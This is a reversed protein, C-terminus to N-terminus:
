AAWFKGLLQLHKVSSMQGNAHGQQRQRARPKVSECMEAPCRPAIGIHRALRALSQLAVGRGGRFPGAQGDFGHGLLGEPGLMHGFALDGDILVARRRHKRGIGAPDDLQQGLRAVVDGLALRQEHDFRGIGHLGLVIEDRGHGAQVLCSRREIERLQLIRAGLIQEFALRDRELVILLGLGRQDLRLVIQARRLGRQLGGAVLQFNEAQAFLGNRCELLLSADIGVGGDERRDCARHHLPLDSGPM